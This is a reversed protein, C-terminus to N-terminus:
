KRPTMTFEAFKVFENSGQRKITCTSAVSGDERIVEVTRVVAAEGTGPETFEQEKWTLTKSGEDYTGECVALGPPFMSNAGTRVYKGKKADYCMIGVEEGSGKDSKFSGQCVVWESGALFKSESSGTIKMPPASPDKLHVTGSFDFKGVFKELVKHEPGNAAKTQDPQQGFGLVALAFVVTLSTAYRM